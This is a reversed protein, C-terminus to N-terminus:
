EPEPLPADEFVPAIVSLVPSAVVPLAPLIYRIIPLVVELTPPLITNDAPPVLTAAVAPPSTFIVEPLPAGLPATVIAVAAPAAEPVMRKFVPLEVDVLPSTEIPVPVEVEAAVPDMDKDTPDLEAAVPPDIDRMAPELTPLVPPEILTVVPDDEDVPEPVMKRPVGPALLTFLKRLPRISSLVPAELLPVEPPINM